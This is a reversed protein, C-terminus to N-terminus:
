TNIANRSQLGRVIMDASLDAHDQVTAPDLQDVGLFHRPLPALTFPAGAGHAVLFHFTSLPIRRIRGKPRSIRYPSRVSANVASGFGDM